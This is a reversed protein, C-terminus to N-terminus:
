AYESYIPEEFPGTIGVRKQLITLSNQFRKHDELLSLEVYENSPIGTVKEGKRGRLGELWERTRRNTLTSHCVLFGGPKIYKWVNSAYEAMRSGVGFDCWLMDISEVESFHTGLADFADGQLFNLYQDLGLTKAVGIANSATQRQHECNDICLLSSPVYSPSSVDWDTLAPTGFPYDLMRLRGENDLDRIRQLELENDKLAQLIWLTTYGAGVEVIRRRKTFRIFSYLFPGFNEVGMHPNYLSEVHHLFLSSFAPSRPLFVQRVAEDHQFLRAEDEPLMSLEEENSPNTEFLIDTRIVYKPRRGSIVPSGEHLPWLYRAREVAEEAVAQPFVLISGTRPQISAIVRDEFSEDNSAQGNATEGRDWDSSRDSECRPSYFKTHGGSFDENLYILVTLRSVIESSQSYQHSADWYLFPRDSGGSDRSGSAITDDDDDDLSVGGPPFGADIHPAFSERQDPSYRYVRLRRNLGAMSYSKRKNTRESEESRLEFESESVGELDVHPGIVTLLSDAVHKPIVIQMAGHNNKGAHYNGFKLEEECLTLISECTSPTLANILLFANQNQLIAELGLRRPPCDAPVNNITADKPPSHQLHSPLVAFTPVGLATLFGSDEADDEDPGPRIRIIDGGLVPSHAVVEFRHQPSSQLPATSSSISSESSLSAGRVSSIKSPRSTVFAAVSPSSGYRRVLPSNSASASSTLLAFPHCLCSESIIQLHHLIATLRALWHGCHHLRM